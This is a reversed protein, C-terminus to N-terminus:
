EKNTRKLFEHLKEYQFDFTDLDTCNPCTTYRHGDDTYDVDIKSHLILENCEDCEVKTKKYRYHYREQPRLQIEVIEINQEIVVNPELKLKDLLNFDMLAFKTITPANYGHSMESITENIFHASKGDVIYDPIDGTVIFDIRVRGPTRQVHSGYNPNLKLSHPNIEILVTIAEM